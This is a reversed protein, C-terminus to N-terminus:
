GYICVSYDNRGLTRPLAKVVDLLLLAMFAATRVHFYFYPLLRYLLRLHEPEVGEKNKPVYGM